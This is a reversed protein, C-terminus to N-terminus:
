HRPRIPLGRRIWGPAAGNGLMGEKVNYVNAFGRAKLFRSAWTSRVGSACILAVPRSRDGGLASLVAALFGGPGQPDHMTVPLASAAIGTEHWESPRRIDILTLAGREARQRAEPASLVGHGAAVAGAPGTLVLVALVALMPALTSRVAARELRFKM